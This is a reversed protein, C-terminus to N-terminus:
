PQYIRTDPRFAAWSFWFHDVKVLPTLSQGALEGAIAQGFINWVSGTQEDVISDGEQVFTLTQGNLSRDFVGSAGVDQGEAISSSDLASALGPQWIVVVATDGVEDNVVGVQALTENPYAVAEDALAVTTVRTMPPLQDPTDGQFLFPSSNIDDYGVYPNQGYRRSHGTDRSLVQAEPFMAQAEAWSIITAPLFTLQSGALEGIVADGGAQQWWSETQRDYMLLNSFRLRGTTGFTLAQGNVTADFVIATNCLPCFTVFVLRGGVVDNVIEHWTLIQFPYIRTEAQEQFVIVPELDGLWEDAEPVAIFSPNDIAPIGDKPPGGSFIESYPITHRTFDTSFERAAGPPPEEAPLLAPTPLPSTLPVATAEDEAAAVVEITAPEGALTPPVDTPPSTDAATACAANILVLALLTAIVRFNTPMM